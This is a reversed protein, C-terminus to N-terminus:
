DLTNIKTYQVHTYSPKRTKFNYLEAIDAGLMFLYPIWFILTTTRFGLMEVVIGGISPGLFNGMLDSAIWLGSILQYARTNEPFGNETASKEARTFSSVYILGM